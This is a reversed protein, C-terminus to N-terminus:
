RCTSSFAGGTVRCVLNQAISTIDGGLVEFAIAVALILGVAIAIYELAGQGRSPQAATRLSCYLRISFNRLTDSFSQM